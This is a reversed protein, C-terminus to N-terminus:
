NNLAHQKLDERQAETALSQFGQAKVTSQAAKEHDGAEHYKAAELHLKAAAELHAATTKHNEIGKQNEAPSVTTKETKIPTTTATTTM